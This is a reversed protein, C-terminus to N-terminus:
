KFEYRGGLIFNMGQPQYWITNFPRALPDLSPRENAINRVTASLRINKFGNYETGLDITVYERVTCVGLYTGAPNGCDRIAAQTGATQTAPNGFPKYSGLYNVIGTNTWNGIQWSGRLQARWEPANRFGSFSELPQGPAGSGRQDIYNTANFSIDLRGMDGLALRHRADIDVGRVKTGGLNAFGTSIFLIAGPDNPVNASVNAPDRVVRNAYRPDTSGENLLIENLSLFTIENRREISFYDISISSDKTPEFIFGATRSKAKEPKIEPFAVILGPISLGCGATVAPRLCRRPDDVGNFFGSTSSRSIETLSPARFGSALSGRFKLTPTAAWTASFKPTLSNGYDSYRDYRGAAQIEVNKFVPLVFETFVTSVNRSGNATAVGRGFIGGVLKLADPTVLRDEKRYEVGAAISAAGGPLQGIEGSTKFDIVKFTSRANDKANVRLDGPKVAGAEPNLFNFGNASFARVLASYNIANYNTTDQETRNYLFATEYDFTGLAGKLGSVIRTTKSDVENDQTGIADFRARVFVPVTYPNNPHGVALQTPAPNLRGTSPNFTAGTGQGVAQPFGSFFTNSHTFSGEAFGSLSANFDATGRFFVSERKIKPVIEARAINDYVCATGGNAVPTGTINFGNYVNPVRNEAPCTTGASPISQGAGNNLYTLFPSYASSILGTGYVTRFQDRNLFSDVERFRVAEQRYIEVNGFVNYRDKTLDGLGFTSTFTQNNYKGEKNTAAFLAVQGGKYDKRLIINIVGAIAESGYIASAGDKLIEIREVVDLPIANLNVAGAQGFNPDALGYPAIRRGNLLVLTASSGLGRLSASAAGASFSGSGTLETLGGAANIPLERLLETVTQKGSRRIEEATIIQVPAATEADVRKINSGTVEIKEIKQPTPAPTQQAFALPSIVLASILAHPLTRLKLKKM